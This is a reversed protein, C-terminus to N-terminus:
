LMNLFADSKVKREMHFEMFASILQNMYGASIRLGSLEPWSAEHLTLFASADAPTVTMADASINEVFGGQTSSFALNGSLPMEPPKITYGLEELFHIKFKVLGYVLCEPKDANKNLYELFNDLLDYLKSNVQEDPTFKIVSELAYYANVTAALNERLRAYAKLVQAGIIKPLRSGALQLNLCYLTQLSPALKSKPLKVSKALARIKGNERSYFTVLEDGEGLPQKKLVIATYTTNPMGHKFYIYDSYQM